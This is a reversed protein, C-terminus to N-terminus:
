VRYQRMVERNAKVAARPDAGARASEEEVVLWGNFNPSTRAIDIVAGIDCVGQGLMAWHGDDKVDKLHIYRIRDRHRRMTALMDPHGRIIHGTDPVWGILRPDTMAFIREYDERTALLTNHHSSPHLAVEVGAAAARAGVANYFIAANNFKEDATGPSMKTASGFSVMAGPFSAAFAIADEAMALDAELMAPETFGSDSGVAYAVLTLRHSALAAAFAEPRGAYHGIMRDTIEIGAYGAASIASLLEDPGGTYGAGLMEWTYTQCGLRVATEDDPAM